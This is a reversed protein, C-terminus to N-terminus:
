RNLEEALERLWIRYELSVKDATKVHMEASLEDPLHEPRQSEVIPKDQALVRDEFDLLYADHEAEVGFDRGQLWFSRTTTPGLPSATMFLVYTKGNPFRRHLYISAPMTLRYTNVPHIIEEEIGLLDKMKDENPETTQRVFRLEGGERWIECGDVEPHDRTGLINEHVWPFHSFDVFNELRRPASTEWTYADPILFRFSPDGFEPVEPLPLRPEDALCVWVIGAAEAAHYRPLQARLVGSLEPRSPIEVVQGSQDYKWGHYPCRLCGNDIWGLSVAAGKHRCVDSFARVGDGLRAVVIREDLLMVPLPDDGLEHSYAVAHWFQRMSRYWASDRSPEFREMAAEHLGASM